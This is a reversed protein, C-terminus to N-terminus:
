VMSCSNSATGGKSFLTEKRARELVSIINSADKDLAAAEDFSRFVSFVVLSVAILLSASILIEILSFGCAKEFSKKKKM